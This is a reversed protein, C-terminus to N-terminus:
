FEEELQALRAAGQAESVESWFSTALIVNSYFDEGCLSQFMALNDRASGEFRREHIPHLYLIANLLTGSRYNLAMYLALKSLVAAEDLESDDFGPTDILTFTLGHTQFSYAECESTETPTDARFYLLRLGHKLKIVHDLM